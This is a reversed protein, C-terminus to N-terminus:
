CSDGYTTLFGTFDAQQISFQQYGKELYKDAQPCDFLISHMENLHGVGQQSIGLMQRIPSNAGDAAIVYQAFIQETTNTQRNLVTAMVGDAKETLSVLETNFRIKTGRQCAEELLIPELKDQAIASATCPSLRQMYTHSAKEDETPTWVQPQHWTGALSEVAIRQLRTHASVQEIRDAIGVMRYHELTLPMFGMARPHPHRGTHKEIVVHDIHHYSLFLASSLGVLSGGVILVPTHLM